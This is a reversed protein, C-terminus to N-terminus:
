LVFSRAAMWQGGETCQKTITDRGRVLAEAEAEQAPAAERERRQQPLVFLPRLGKKTKDKNQTQTTTLSQLTHM